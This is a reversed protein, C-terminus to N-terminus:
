LEQNQEFVIKNKVSKLFKDVLILFTLGQM